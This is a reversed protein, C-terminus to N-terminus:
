FLPRKTPIGVRRPYRAPCLSVQLLSQYHFDTSWRETPSLGLPALGDEPWRATDDPPESVLVHGGVRLLPAACEATVAPAGFGRAVVVDFSSRLEPRRGAEEARVAIVTCRDILGLSEVADVLFGARTASGEILVARAEPWAVALVLGPLGGGSGLDAFSSPAPVPGEAFGSAHAIARPLPGAGIWGRRQADLLVTELTTTEPM